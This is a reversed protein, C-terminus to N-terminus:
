SSHAGAREQWLQLIRSAMAEPSQGTSDLRIADDAQKLPAVSRQSDMRDRSSILEQLEELSIQQGRALAEEHQRRAREGVSATLFIKLPAHPFVVTGIDRGDMIIGNPHRLQQLRRTIATRVGPYASVPSIARNIAPTRVQDTIAQGAVFVEQQGNHESVVIDANEALAEIRAQDEIPLDQRFALWTVARYYLGTNVHWFGLERAVLDAVTSKGAGAHGDIAIVPTSSYNSNKSNSEATM